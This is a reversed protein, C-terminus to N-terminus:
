VFFNHDPDYLFLFGTVAHLDTKYLFSEPSYKELLAMSRKMFIEMKDSKAVMDAGDGAYLDRFMSCVEEPEHKAFECLGYFPQTYSDILNETLKKVDLLAAPFADVPSELARDMAVPFDKAIKWKYWETSPSVNMYEFKGLYHQLIQELHEKNM